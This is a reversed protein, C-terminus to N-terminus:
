LVVAAPMMTTSLLRLCSELFPLIVSSLALLRNVLPLGLIVEGIVVNNFKRPEVVGRLVDLSLNCDDIESLDGLRIEIEAWATPNLLCAGLVMPGHLFEEDLEALQIFKRPLRIFCERLHQHFQSHPQSSSSAM